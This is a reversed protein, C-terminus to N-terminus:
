QWIKFGSPFSNTTGTYIDKVMSTGGATGDSIWLEYGNTHQQRYVSGQRQRVRNLSSINSSATGSNIDSVLTTGGWRATPSGCNMAM